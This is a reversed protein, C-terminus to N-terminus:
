YPVGALKGYGLPSTSAYMYRLSLSLSGSADVQPVSLTTGGLVQDPTPLILKMEYNGTSVIADAEPVFHVFGPDDPTLAMEPSLMVTKMGANECKQCLMMIDVGSHGDGIWTMVVGNTDLMTLLKVGFGLIREKEVVATRGYFWLLLGLFNVDVGHRRYLERVIPHNQYIYSTDRSNAPGMFSSFVVGDFMENPHLLTPQWGIKEGYLWRNLHLQCAYAVRPLSPDVSTLEYVQVEEPDLEKTVSALYDAVRFGAARAARNYEQAYTSGDIVDVMELAAEEAPSFDVKGKLRLVLNITSSFPTYQAGTGWMDIIGDRWHIAEGPAPEGTAVLAMGQLRHTRGEGVSVPPGLLGPFVTGPGSVKHRPEVVDLINIIRTKDGPRALDVEVDIFHTDSLVVQRLEEKNVYLIGNSFGTSQSFVIDQVQFSALDLRV